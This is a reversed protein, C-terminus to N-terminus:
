TKMIILLNASIGGGLKSLKENLLTKEIFRNNKEITDLPQKLSEAIDKFVRNFGDSIVKKWYKRQSAKEIPSRIERM